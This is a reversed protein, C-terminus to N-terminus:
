REGGRLAVLPDVSAARRAPVYCAALAVTSIIAAAGAFTVRDLPEVGVLVSTLLRSLLAAGGLGIVAGSGTVILGDLLVRRVLDAPRAGLALRIGLECTRQSVAFAMVGYVGVAALTLALCAFAGVLWGWLRPQWISEVMMADLTQLNAVAINRDVAGVAERLTPGFAAADGTTRVLFFLGEPLVQTYAYYVEVGDNQEMPGYRVDGVVGVVTAWPTSGELPGWKLEQGIPDRGPWLTDAARASVVVVWPTDTSDANTFTRGELLPIRLASFYGPSVDVRMASIRREETRSEDGRLTVSSELRDGGQYPLRSAGAAGAVG